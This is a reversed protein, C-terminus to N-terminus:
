RSPQRAWLALFVVLVGAALGLLVSRTGTVAAGALAAVAYVFLATRQWGKLNRILAGLAVAAVAVVTLYLGLTTPQGITSFPSLAGNTDWIFPDRGALQLAEYGLVVIAAGLASGVVAVFEGRRRVLLVVSLYLVVGDAITGLGLMRAHT